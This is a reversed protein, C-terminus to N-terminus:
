HQNKPIIPPLAQEAQQAKRRADRREAQEKLRDLLHVGHISFRKEVEIVHLKAQAFNLGEPAPDSQAGLGYEMPTIKEKVYTATRADIWDGTRFDTVWIETKPDDKWAQTDLWLTACGIDDFGVVKSRKGEPFYRIQASYHRDSLVMRCRECAVRDWKVEKPGTGPDGSCATLLLIALGVLLSYSRKAPM